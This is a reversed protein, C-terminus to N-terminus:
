AKSGLATTKAKSLREYIEAAAKHDNLAEDCEAEGMAAAESLYGIPRRQQIERFTRRADSLRGLQRQAIGAYLLAYGDLLPQLASVQSLMPLARTWRDEDVFSGREMAMQVLLNFGYMQWSAHRAKIEVFGM